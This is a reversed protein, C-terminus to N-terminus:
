CRASRAEPQGVRFKKNVAASVIEGAVRGLAMNASNPVHGSHLATEKTPKM